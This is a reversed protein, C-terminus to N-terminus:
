TFYSKIEPIKTIIPLYESFDSKIRRACRMCFDYRLANDERMQQKMGWTHTFYREGDCFLKEINSFEKTEIGLMNACMPLLRQEAFVMYTLNDDDESNKIFEMAEKVYLDKLDRNKMVYFATNAPKLRWDLNPNFVYGRKMNFHYIEPYVDSYLEERHIVTIDGLNDFALRDWVIFDTDIVAVPIDENKLAFLKGAAWFQNPKVYDPIDNLETTVEDWLFLMDREKYFEYGVSDTVMKITGNKERWKLASLITTMIDFDEIFFSNCADTRPRTWNSHIAQM